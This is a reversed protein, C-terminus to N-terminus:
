LWDISNLAFTNIKDLIFSYNGLFNELKSIRGVESPSTRPICCPKRSYDSLNQTVWFMGQWTGAFMLNSAAWYMQLPQFCVKSHEFSCLDLTRIRPKYNPAVMAYALLIATHWVQPRSPQITQMHAQRIAPLDALRGTQPLYLIATEKLSPNGREFAFFPYRLLGHEAMQRFKRNGM